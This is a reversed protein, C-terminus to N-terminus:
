EVTTLAVAAVGSVSAPVHLPSASALYLTQYERVVPTPLGASKM